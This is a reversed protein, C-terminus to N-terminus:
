QKKEGEEKIEEIKASEPAAAIAKPSSSSTSAGWKKKLKPWVYRLSKVPGASLIGKLSQNFTPRGVILALGALSSPSPFPFLSPLFTLVRLLFSHLHLSFSASQNMVSKFEEDGVIKEWMRQSDLDVLKTGEEKHAKEDRAKLVAAELNWKREYHGLVKERLGSPLRSATSARRALSLDQRMLRVGGDMGEEHVEGITHVSKWFSKLLGGYLSRFAPLQAAVINRVKHPNEGVKMRFDGRYSLGAIEEFLQIETFSEPLLLLAARLASALNM